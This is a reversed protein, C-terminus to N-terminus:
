TATWDDAMLSPLDEVQWWLFEVNSLVNDLDFYAWARSFLDMRWPRFAHVGGHLIPHMEQGPEGIEGDLLEQRHLADALHARIEEPVAHAVGGDLGSNLGSFLGEGGEFVGDGPVDPLGRDGVGIFGTNPYVMFEMPEMDDARVQDGPIAEMGFSPPFSNSGEADQEGILANKNVIAPSRIEFEAAFVAQAVAMDKPFQGENILHKMLGPGTRKVLQKEVHLLGYDLM